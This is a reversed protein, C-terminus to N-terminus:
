PGSPAIPVTLRTGIQLLRPRVSPNAAQLESIPVGYRVAIHSLTEGSVVVHEVFTVRESEPIRAYNASFVGARGSPVRLTVERGPPTVGRVFEPNLEVIESEPAEAARAVVDLTTADPVRVEDFTLPLSELAEYGYRGPSGAVLVAGFFKPVFERTERPFYRRLAWFLSDSRPVLAAQQRLIRRVRNPGSNYAALAFFWSGHEEHLDALFRLAIVTSKFPDRREDLLPTVEMGFGRATAAMFQWMGVARARSVARPNYGSEVVPLYRLSAPLREEALVSDVSTVYRAMRELYDPFWASARNQWYDVWWDVEALFDPDRLMPSALIEDRIMEGAPPVLYDAESPGGFGAPDIFVVPAAYPTPPATPGGAGCGSVSALCALFVTRTATHSFRTGKERPTKLDVEATSDFPPPEECGTTRRRAPSRSTTRIHNM